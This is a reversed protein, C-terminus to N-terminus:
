NAAALSRMTGEGTFPGASDVDVCVRGGPGSYWICITTSVTHCWGDVCITLTLTKCIRWSSPVNVCIPWLAANDVSGTVTAGNPGIGQVTGDGLEQLHWAGALEPTGACNLDYVAFSASDRFGNVFCLAGGAAQASPAGALITVATVVSLVLKRGLRTVHM